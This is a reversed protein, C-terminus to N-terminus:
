CLSKQLASTHLEDHTHLHLVSSTPHLFWIMMGSSVLTDDLKHCYGQCSTLLTQHYTKGQSSSLPHSQDSNDCFFLPPSSLTQLPGPKDSVRLSHSMREPNGVCIPGAMGRAAKTLRNFSLSTRWCSASWFQESQSVSWSSSGTM